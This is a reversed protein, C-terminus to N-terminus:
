SNSNAMFIIVRVDYFVYKLGIERWQKFLKEMVANLNEITRWFELFITHQSYNWWKCWIKMKIEPMQSILISERRQISLIQKRKSKHM